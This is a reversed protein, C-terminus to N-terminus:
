GRVRQGGVDVKLDLCRAEARQHGFQKEVVIRAQRWLLSLAGLLAEISQMVSQVRGFALAAACFAVIEQDDPREFQRVIWIPDAVSNALNFHAYIEDLQAKVTYNHEGEIDIVNEVPRSRKSRKRIM